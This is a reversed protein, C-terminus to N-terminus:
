CEEDEDEKYNEYPESTKVEAEEYFANNWFAEEYDGDEPKDCGYAVSLVAYEFFYTTIVYNQESATGCDYADFKEKLEDLSESYLYKINSENMEMAIGEFAGKDNERSEACHCIALRYITIQDDDTKITQGCYPSKIEKM